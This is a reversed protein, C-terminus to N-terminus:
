FFPHPRSPEWHVVYPVPVRGAWYSSRVESIEGFCSRSPKAVTANASMNVIISFYDMIESIVIRNWELIESVQLKRSNWGAFAHRDRRPNGFNDKQNIIPKLLLHIHFLSFKNFLISCLFGLLRVRLHGSRNWKRHPYVIRGWWCRSAQDSPFVFQM